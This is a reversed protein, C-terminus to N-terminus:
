QQSKVSSDFTFVVIDKGKVALSEDLEKARTLVKSVKAMKEALL